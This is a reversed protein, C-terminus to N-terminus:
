LRGAQRKKVMGATFKKGIDVSTNAGGPVVESSHLCGIFDGLFDALSGQAEIDSEVTLFQKRLSDLAILEPTTGQAKAREAVVKELDPTLTITIM